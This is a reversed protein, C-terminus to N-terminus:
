SSRTCQEMYTKVKRSLGIRTGLRRDNYIYVLGKSQLSRLVKLLWSRDASLEEELPEVYTYTSGWKLYHTLLHEFVEREDEGLDLAELLAEACVLREAELQEGRSSSTQAATFRQSGSSGGAGPVGRESNVARKVQGGGSLISRALAVYQDLRESVEREVISQAFRAGEETLRWFGNEYDFLGRVRWYSLYSTVYNVPYGLAQAIEAARMPRALLLVAIAEVVRSRPRGARARAV